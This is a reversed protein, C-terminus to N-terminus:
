EDASEQWSPPLTLILEEDGLIVGCWDLAQAMGAISVDYQALGRGRANGNSEFQYQVTATENGIMIGMLMNIPLQAANAGYAFMTRRDGHGAIIEADQYLYNQFGPNTEWNSYSLQLTQGGIILGTIQPDRRDPFRREIAGEDLQLEPGGSWGDEPSRRRTMTIAFPGNELECRAEEFYPNSEHREIAVIVKGNWDAIQEEAVPFQLERALTAAEIVASSGPGTLALAWSGAGVSKM